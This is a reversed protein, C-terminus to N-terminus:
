SFANARPVQLLWLHRCAIHCPIIKFKECFEGLDEGLMRLFGNNAFFWRGGRFQHIITPSFGLCQFPIRPNQRSIAGTQCYIRRAGRLLLVSRIAKTPFRSELQPPIAILFLARIWGFKAKSAMSSATHQAACNILVVTWKGNGGIQAAEAMSKPALLLIAMSVM